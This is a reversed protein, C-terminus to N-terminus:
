KNEWLNVIIQIKYESNASCKHYDFDTSSLM